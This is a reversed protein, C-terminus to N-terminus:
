PSEIVSFDGLYNFRILKQLSHYPMGAYHKLIGFDIPFEFGKGTVNDWYPKELIARSKAYRELESAWEKLSHTKLPLSISRGSKIQRWLRDIDELLIRWSVGDVVLHHATLLIWRTAAL